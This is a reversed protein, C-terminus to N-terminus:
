PWGAFARGHRPPRHRTPGSRHGKLGDCVVICVDERGRNKIEAMVGLSSKAGEGDDGVWIGLIDREGNVTVGFAVCFPTNRVQGDRVAVVLADIFVVPLCRRRPPRV